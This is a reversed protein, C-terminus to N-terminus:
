LFYLCAQDSFLDWKSLRLVELVGMLAESLEKENLTVLQLIFYGLM